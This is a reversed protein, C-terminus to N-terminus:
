QFYPSRKFFVLMVAAVESGVILMVFFKKNNYYYLVVWHEKENKGKHSDSKMLASSIYQLYHSGYDVFLCLIFIMSCFQNERYLTSLILYIAGASVRDCVM